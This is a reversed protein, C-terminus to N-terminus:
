YRREMPDPSSLRAEAGGLASAQGNKTDIMGLCAGNPNGM